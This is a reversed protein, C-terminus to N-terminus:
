VNKRLQTTPLDGSVMGLTLEESFVQLEKISVGSKEWVRVEKFCPEQKRGLMGLSIVCGLSELLWDAFASHVGGAGSCCICFVGITNGCGRSHLWWLEHLKDGPHSNYMGSCPINMWCALYRRPARHTCSSLTADWIINEKEREREPFFLFASIVFGILGTYSNCKMEVGFKM